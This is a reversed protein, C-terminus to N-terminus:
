RSASAASTGSKQAPEGGDVKDLEAIIADIRQKVTGANEQAKKSADGLLGVSQPSLETGLFTRIDELDRMLPEYADRAQGSATSIREHGERLRSRRAEASARITPNSIDSVREDWTAFYDSRAQRMAESESKLKAAHQRTRAVQDAYKDFAPRLNTQGPDTLATLAALTSDIQRKGQVLDSRYQALPSATASASAGGSAAAERAGPSDASAKITSNQVPPAEVEESSSCGSVCSFAVLSLSWFGVGVRNSTSRQM